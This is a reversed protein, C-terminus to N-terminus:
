TIFEKDPIFREKGGIIKKYKYFTDKSVKSKEILQDDNLDPFKSLTIYVKTYNTERAFHLPFLDQLMLLDNNNISNRNNLLANGKMFNICYNFARQVSIINSKDFDICLKDFLKLDLCNYDVIIKKKKGLPLKIKPLEKDRHRMFDLVIRKTSESKQPPKVQIVRDTFTETFLKEKLNYQDNSKSYDKKKVEIINPNNHNIINSDDPETVKSEIQEIMTQNEFFFKRAIGFLANCNGNVENGLQKYKGSSLLETFFGTLQERSKKSLGSFGLILDDHLLLKDKFYSDKNKSLEWAYIKPPLKTIYKPNSLNIMEFLTSKGGGMDEILLNSNPRQIYDTWLSCINPFILMAVEGYGYLYEAVLRGLRITESNDEGFTM